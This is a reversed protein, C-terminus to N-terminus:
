PVTRISTGFIEILENLRGSPRVPMVGYPKTSHVSISPFIERKSEGILVCFRIKRVGLSEYVSRNMTITDTEVGPSM